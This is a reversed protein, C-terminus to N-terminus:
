IDAFLRRWWARRPAATQQSEAPSEPEKDMTLLRIQENAQQLESQLFGVQGALQLNEHQLRDITDFARLLVADHTPVQDDNIVQDHDPLQVDPEATYPAYETAPQTPVQDHTPVQDDHDTLDVPQDLIHVRWEFGQATDVQSAQVKGTKIWRRITAPAVQYHQAAEQVSLEM